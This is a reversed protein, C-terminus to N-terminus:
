RNLLEKDLEALLKIKDKPLTGSLPVLNSVHNSRFLCHTHDPLDIGAIILRLEQLLQRIGLPFFQKGEAAARLKSGPHLMLTLINLMDPQIINVAQATHRAHQGTFAEGGAGLIVMLSLKVGADIVKRCANVMEEANVGKHLLALVEDDGSEMGLYIIKLGADHLIKLEEISKALVDKPGAYCTVRSLKPFNERLKAIITLLRETPLVLANGDALFVRRVTPSWYAAHQIQAEIEELSRIRFQVDRYMSCFSCKNHSCGTTVRLIFSNAESPPRFVTGEDDGYYM